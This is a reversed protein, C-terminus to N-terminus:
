VRARTVEGAGWTTRWRSKVKHIGYISLVSLVTFIFFGIGFGDTLQKSQGLVWALFFGGIGGAAGVMGTVAGVNKRFRLPVLQFVAGSAMGLAGTGIILLLVALWTPLSFSVLLMCAATTAYFRQMSRIGGFKDAM